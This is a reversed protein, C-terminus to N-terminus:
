EILRRVARQAQAHDAAPWPRIDARRVPLRGPQIAAVRQHRADKGGVGARLRAKAAVSSMAGVAAIAGPVLHGRLFGLAGVADLDDGDHRGVVAVVGDGFGKQLLANIDDAVLRQGVIQGLRQIQLLQRLGPQDEADGVVVGAIRHHPLRPRHHAAANPSM